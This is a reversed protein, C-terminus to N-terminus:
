DKLHDLNELPCHKKRHYGGCTYCNGSIRGFRDDYRKKLAEIRSANDHPVPQGDEHQAWRDNRPRRDDWDRDKRKGHYRRDDRTDRRRDSGSSHGVAALAERVAEQPKKSAEEVLKQIRSMPEELAAIVTRNVTNMIDAPSAGKPKEYALIDKELRSVLARFEEFDTMSHWGPSLQNLKRVLEAGLNLGLGRILENDESRPHVKRYLNAYRDVYGLLTSTEKDYRMNSLETRYTLDRDTPSFRTRLAQKVAKWNGSSLDAKLYNKAFIGADGVLTRKIASCKREQSFTTTARGFEKLFAEVDEGPQGKFEPLNLMNFSYYISERLKDISEGMNEQAM